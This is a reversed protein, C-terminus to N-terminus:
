SIFFIVAINDPFKDEGSVKTIFHKRNIELGNHDSMNPDTRFLSSIFHNNGRIYVSLLSNCCSYTIQQSRLYIIKHKILYTYSALTSVCTCVRVCVCLLLAIIPTCCATNIFEIFYINSRTINKAQLLRHPDRLATSLIPGDKDQNKGIETKEFMFLVNALSNLLVTNYKYMGQM